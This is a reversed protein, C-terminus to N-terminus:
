KQATQTAVAEAERADVAAVITAIIEAKKTAGKLDIGNREAGAKLEDVTSADLEARWESKAQARAAAEFRAQDEVTPLRAGGIKIQRHAEADDFGGHLDGPRLEVGEATTHHALMVVTKM